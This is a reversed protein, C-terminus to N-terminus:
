GRRSPGFVDVTQDFYVVEIFVNRGSKHKPVVFAYTHGAATICEECPNVVSNLQVRNGRADV